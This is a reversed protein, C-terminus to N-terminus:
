EKPDIIVSDRGLLWARADAIEEDSPYFNSRKMGDWTGMVGTYLNPQHGDGMYMDSMRFMAHGLEQNLIASFMEPQDLYELAIDIQGIEGDGWSYCGAAGSGCATEKVVNIRFDPFHKVTRSTYSAKNVAYLAVGTREWSLPNRATAFVMDRAITRKGEVIGLEWYVEWSMPVGPLYHHGKRYALRQKIFGPPGEFHHPKQPDGAPVTVKPVGHNM